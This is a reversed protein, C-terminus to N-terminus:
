CLCNLKEFLAAPLFGVNRGNSGLSATGHECRRDRQAHGAKALGLHFLSPFVERDSSSTRSKPLKQLGVRRSDGLFRRGLVRCHQQLYGKRYFILFFDSM